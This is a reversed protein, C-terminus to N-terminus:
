VTEVSEVVGFVGDLTCDLTCVRRREHCVRREAHALTTEVRSNIPLRQKDDSRLVTVIKQSFGQIGGPGSEWKSTVTKKGNDLGLVQIDTLSFNFREEPLLLNHNLSATTGPLLLKYLDPGLPCRTNNRGVQDVDANVIEFRQELLPTTGIQRSGPLM